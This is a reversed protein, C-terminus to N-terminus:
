PLFSHSSANSSTDASQMLADSEHLSASSVNFSFFISPGHFSVSLAFVSLVLLSPLLCSFLFHVQPCKEDVCGVRLDCTVKRFSFIPPFLPSPLISFLTHFAARDFPHSTTASIQRSLFFFLISLPPPCLPCFSYVRSLISSFCVLTDNSNYSTSSPKM